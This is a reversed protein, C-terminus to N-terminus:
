REPCVARTTAASSRRCQFTRQGFRADSRASTLAAALRFVPLPASAEIAGVRHPLWDARRLAPEVEHEAVPLRQAIGDGDALGAVSPAADVLHGVLALPRVPRRGPLHQLTPGIMQWTMHRASGVVWHTC